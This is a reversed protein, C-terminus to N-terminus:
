QISYWMEYIMEEAIDEDENILDALLWIAEEWVINEDDDDDDDNYQGSYEKENYENEFYTTKM